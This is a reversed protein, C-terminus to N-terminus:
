GPVCTNTNSNNLMYNPDCVCEGIATFDNVSCYGHGGCVPRAAGIDLGCFAACTSTPKPIHPLGCIRLNSSLCNSDVSWTVASCNTFKVQGHSFFNNNVSYKEIFPYTLSPLRGSFRNGSLSLQTLNKMNQIVIDIPGSLQNSRLQ